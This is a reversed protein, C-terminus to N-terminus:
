VSTVLSTWILVPVVTSHGLLREGETHWTQMTALQVATRGSICCKANSLLAM